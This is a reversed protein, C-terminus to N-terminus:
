IGKEQATQAADCDTSVLLAARSLLNQVADCVAACQQGVIAARAILVIDYGPRIQAHHHRLAERMLRRARNRVVANGIRRTTVVGYRNHGLTNQAFSLIVLPHRRSTGIARLRAFDAPRRLRFRAQM